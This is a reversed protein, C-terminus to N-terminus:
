NSRVSVMKMDFLLPTYPPIRQNGQAGYAMKSPILVTVRDGQHMKGLVSVWGKILAMNKSYLLNLTGNGPGKDSQEIVTGDLSMLTYGVSISDGDKVMPGNGKVSKIYFISDADPKASSNNKQLYAAIAAPEQAKLGQAAEMRKQMEAQREAMMQQQTEFSVLKIHFTFTPNSKVFAPLPRDAPFHFTKHFLSDTNVIFIASDGKAMMMIGSELCGSFSKKLPIPITGLSDGFGKLHTDRFVSDKDGAVNKGTWLLVVHAFSGETPKVGNEDHNIFRYQVGTTADTKFSGGGCSTMLAAVAFSFLIFNITTRTRM